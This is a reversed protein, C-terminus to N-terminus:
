RAALFNMYEDHTRIRQGQYVVFYTKWLSFHDIIWGMARTCYTPDDCLKASIEKEILLCEEIIKPFAEAARLVVPKNLEDARTYAIYLCLVAMALNWPDQISQNTVRSYITHLDDTNTSESFIASSYGQNELYQVVDLDLIASQIKAGLEEFFDRETQFYSSATKNNVFPYGNGIQWVHRLEHLLTTELELSNRKLDLYVTCYGKEYCSFDTSGYSSRTIEKIDRFNVKVPLSSLTSVVLQATKETLKQDLIYM